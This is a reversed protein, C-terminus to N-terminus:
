AGGGFLITVYSQISFSATGSELINSPFAIFYIKGCAGQLAVSLYLIFYTQPLSVASLSYIPCYNPDRIVHVIVSQSGRLGPIEPISQAVTVYRARFYLSICFYSRLLIKWFIFPQSSYLAMFMRSLCYACVIIGSM